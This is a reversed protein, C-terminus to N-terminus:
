RFKLRSVPSGLGHATRLDDVNQKLYRRLIQLDAHGMLEQLSFIDVGARLMNIAFARRFSHLEVHQVGAKKCKVKLMTNLGSYTFRTGTDSLWLANNDDQRQKLYSRIARRSAQSLFVTRPKRGKGSRILVAGSVLDIDDVNLSLLENARAGTDLLALFIAKDRAGLVDSGCAKILKEVDSLEVPQLPDIAVKPAKVKSTPPKGEQDTEQWYWSLFARLARYCAHQGGANHGTSELWLMFRRIADPTLQSIQTIAQTECYELLRNIRDRYWLVTNKSLNQARRDVLFQEIWADLYDSLAVEAITMHRSFDGTMPHDREVVM